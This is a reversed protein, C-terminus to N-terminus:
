CWVCHICLVCVFFISNLVFQLTIMKVNKRGNLEGQYDAIENQTESAEATCM